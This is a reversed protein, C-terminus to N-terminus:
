LGAREKFEELNECKLEEAKKFEEEAASKDGGLAHAVALNAHIVAIKPELEAAKALNEVAEAFKGEAIKVAGLSAYAEGKAPNLAIARKYTAEAKGNDGLERYNRGLQVLMRYDEKTELLKELYVNAEEFDGEAMLINAIFNYITEKSYNTDEELAQEFLNKSEEFSHRQYADMAQRITADGQKACSTAALSLTALFVASTTKLHMKKM